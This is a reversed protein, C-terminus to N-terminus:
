RNKERNVFFINICKGILSYPPPTLRFLKLVMEAGEALWLIGKYLRSFHLQAYKYTGTLSHMTLLFRFVETVVRYKYYAILHEQVTGYLATICV